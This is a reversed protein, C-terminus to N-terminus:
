FKIRASTGTHTGWMATKQIDLQNLVELVDASYEVIGFPGPHPVSRGHGRLDVALVQHTRRLVPVADRFYTNDRTFAHLLTVWEASSNDSYITYSIFKVAGM